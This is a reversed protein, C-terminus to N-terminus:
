KKFLSAPVQIVGLDNDGPKIELKFKGKKWEPKAALFRAAEQWVQFEWTGAPLDKIEFSGDDGTVAAYPNDRPLVYGRMWPHINCTVPIPANQQKNFHHDAKQGSAILPNFPADGLPSIASNHSAPDSNHLEITQSTRMVLVHPEFRCHKNDLVVTADATAEYEPNVPVKKSALYIVVDKLGGDDGVVISENFVPHQTCVPDKSTDIAERAPAGGEYVFRGKLNGWGAPEASPAAEATQEEEAAEGGGKRIEDVLQPNPEPEAVMAVSRGCGALTALLLMAAVLDPVQWKPNM